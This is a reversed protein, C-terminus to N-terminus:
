KKIKKSTPKKSSKTASKRKPKEPKIITVGPEQSIMNICITMLDNLRTEMKTVADKLEKVTTNIDM